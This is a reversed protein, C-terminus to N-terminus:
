YLHVSFVHLVGTVILLLYLPMHLVHWAHFMREYFRLSGIREVLYFFEDLGAHAKDLEQRVLSPSAPSRLAAEAVATEIDSHLQRKLTQRQRPSRLFAFSGAVSRTSALTSDALKRLDDLAAASIPSGIAMASESQEVAKILDDVEARQGYIGSHLHAYIYRGVIGSGVVLLMAIMAVTGNKSNMVFGSHIVVMAPGVVGLIMHAQFWGPVTGWTQLFKYHKRAPYILVALMMLGGVIGLYYGLGDKPSLQREMVLALGYAIVALVAVTFAVTVATASREGTTVAKKPRAILSPRDAHRRDRQGRREDVAPSPEGPEEAFQRARLISRAM